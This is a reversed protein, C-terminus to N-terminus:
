TKTTPSPTCQRWTVASSATHTMLSKLCPLSPTPPAPHLRSFGTMPRFRTTTSATCINKLPSKGPATLLVRAVGKSKLHQGLGEEDRWRGTNDVVMADHIGYATYDISSPDNSYIVHILTGNALITNNDENITITGEFPGHVSDRRLLSARKMLDNDSGKRVVIARLRLGHDGGQRAILIRALLRGIRGFGYLVIDTGSTSPPAATNAGLEARLFATVDSEGSEEFRTALRGLDLSAPAPEIDLLAELMEATRAVDLEHQDIRRAFKHTKLIEIASSGVLRRGHISTVVGYQRYLRGILPIMSEAQEERAIWARREQEYADSM